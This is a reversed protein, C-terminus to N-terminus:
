GVGEPLGGRNVLLWALIAIVGTGKEVFNRTRNDDHVIGRM